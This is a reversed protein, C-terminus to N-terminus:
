SKRVVFKLIICNQLSMFRKQGDPLVFAYTKVGKYDAHGLFEIKKTKLLDQNVEYVSRDEDWLGPEVIPAKDEASDKTSDKTDDKADISEALKLMLLQKVTQVRKVGSKDYLEYMGPTDAPRVSTFYTKMREMNWKIKDEPRPDEWSEMMVAVGMRVLEDASKNFRRGDKELVEYVHVIGEDKTEIETKRLGILKEKAREKMITIHDEPWVATEIPLEKGNLRKLVEAASPRRDPDPNLMDSILAVYAPEKITNSIVLQHPEKGEDRTLLVQWPYIFRGKDRMRQLSSPLGDSEPKKGTLYEHLVLGMTFIDSKTTMYKKFSERFEPDENNSYIALEPSFYDATGTISDIPVDDEFFAGDFDIIKSVYNGSENRVLMINTLKLDGHVIGQGHITQLAGIAIKLVLLKKEPDLGAIVEAYKDEPLAGEVFESFEMWHHDYVTETEPYIINGGPGAIDRLKQNLRTKRRKFEDFMVQNEKILRPSMTGNDVPEVLNNFKKCFYKKGNKRASGIMGCTSFKMGEIETMYGCINESM